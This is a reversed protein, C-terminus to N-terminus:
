RKRPCENRASVLQCFELVGPHPLNEQHSGAVLDQEFTCLGSMMSVTLFYVGDSWGRRRWLREALRRGRPIVM